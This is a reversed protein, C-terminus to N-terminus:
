KLWQYGFYCAAVLWVYVGFVWLKARKVIAILPTITLYAVLASVLTAVITKILFDSTLWESRHEDKLAKLIGSGGLGLSAVVSMMFSFRVAWSRELGVLLAVAMTSGSRSLGRMVAACGQAVGMAAAQWWKMTPGTTTGPKLYGTGILVAGLIIFNFAVVDPKKFSNKIFDGKMLVALAAPLSAIGIMVLLYFVDRTTAPWREPTPESAATKQVLGGVSQRLEKGFYLIVALLTGLHLVGDFFWEKANDSDPWNFMSQFLVLHGSSSVPLFETIGQVVGLFIAQLWDM